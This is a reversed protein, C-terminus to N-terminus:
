LHHIDSLFRSKKTNKDGVLIRTSKWGQILRILAMFNDFYEPSFYVSYATIDNINNEEFPPFRKALALAEKFCNSRSKEFELRLANFQM